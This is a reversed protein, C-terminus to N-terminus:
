RVVTVDGTKIHEKGDYQSRYRAVYTFVAASVMQGRYTGDWQDDMGKGEFVLAGWRDYIQWHIAEIGKGAFQFVDNIGDYNPTFVNPVFLRHEPRICVPLQKESSCGGANTIHLTIYFTGIDTYQYTLYSGYNYPQTASSDGFDWYGSVGGVSYDLVEIQAELSSLCDENPSVGFNAEVPPHGPLEVDTLVSCGSELSEVLVEYWGPHGSYVQGEFPPETQWIYRFTGETHVFVTASTTDDPCVRAGTTYESRIEPHVFVTLQERGPDSCGDHAEVTYVTTYDPSVTQSSGPGLGEDWSFTYGTTTDGGSATASLEIQDGFCISDLEFNTLVEIPTGVVIILSAENYCDGTGVAYELLHMGQGAVIPNFSSVPEGDVWLWEFQPNQVALINTDKYCYHTPFTDLIAEIWPTVWVEMSASCGEATTYYMDHYGTGALAPDFIGTLENVIGPGSWSGGAIDTELAIPGEIECVIADALTPSANVEVYLSDSCTNAEYILLHLGAGARGPDFVFVPMPSEDQLVSIGPGSWSGDEPEIGTNATNLEFRGDATCFQLPGNVGVRTQRIFVIREATCGNASYSLTDNDGDVLLSPDYLGSQPDIIGRGSWVGGAPVGRNPLVFPVQEPCASLHSGARIEKIFFSLSDACGNISYVLTNTGTEAESPDFLGSDADVIGAGSWSGGFPTAALEFAPESQCLTDISPLNIHDVHVMKSGTCGNPHTYFVEFDGIEVPDFTGDPQIHPGSWSGGTPSGGSVRFPVVGPCSADESGVDLENITIAIQDTCGNGPHTYVVTDTLSETLSADYLGALPDALGGGEWEGGAPTASLAIPDDSQCIELDGNTIVPSPLPNLQISAEATAGFVDTVTVSYSTPGEPCVEITESNTVTPNWIYSYTNPDGGNAIASLASCQGSCLPDDAVELLVTLPCDNIQFPEVSLMRRLIHCDNPLWIIYNIEYNGGLDLPPDFSLTLSNTMGNSCSGPTASTIAPSVPGIIAFNATTVSDCPIADAFHLTLSSSGCSLPEIPLIDPPVPEDVEVWWHARWGVCSVSEDSHFYLSICGSTAIVTPPDPEGTFIGGVPPSNTDPGDFIQLYDFDEETCFYEFVMTIRDAGPICISFTYDENHDYNEAPDGANSDMLYGECDDVVQNSMTYEPQAYLGAFSLCFIGGILLYLKTM